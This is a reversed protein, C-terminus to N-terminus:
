SLLKAVHEEIQREIEDARGALAKQQYLAKVYERILVPVACEPQGCKIGVSPSKSKASAM